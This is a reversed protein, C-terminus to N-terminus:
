PPQRRARRRSSLQLTGYSLVFHPMWTIIPRRTPESGDLSKLLSGDSFATMALEFGPLAAGRNPCRLSASGSLGAVFKVALYITIEHLVPKAEPRDDSPQPGALGGAGGV